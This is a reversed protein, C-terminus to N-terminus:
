WLTLCSQSPDGRLPCDESGAMLTPLTTAPRIEVFVGPGLDALGHTVAVVAVKGRPMGWDDCGWDDCGM